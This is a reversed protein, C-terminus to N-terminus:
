GVPTGICKYLFVFLIYIIKICLSHTIIVFWLVASLHCNQQTFLLYKPIKLSNQTAQLHSVNLPPRLPQQSGMFTHLLHTDPTFDLHDPPGGRPGQTTSGSSNPMLLMPLSNFDRILSM